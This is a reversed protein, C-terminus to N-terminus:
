DVEDTSKEEKQVENSKYDDDEDNTRSSIKIIFLMKWCIRFIQLASLFQFAILATMIHYKDMSIFAYLCSIVVVMNSIAVFLSM